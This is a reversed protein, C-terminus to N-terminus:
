KRGRHRRWCRATEISEFLGDMRCEDYRASTSLQTLVTTADIASCMYRGGLPQGHRDCWKPTWLDVRPMM